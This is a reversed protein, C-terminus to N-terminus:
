STEAVALSEVEHALVAEVARDEVGAETVGSM